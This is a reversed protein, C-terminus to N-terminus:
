VFRADVPIGETASPDDRTVDNIRMVDNKADSTTYPSKNGYPSFQPSGGRVLLASKAIIGPLEYHIRKAAADQQEESIIRKAAEGDEGGNGGSDGGGSQVDSKFRVSRRGAITGPGTQCSVPYM